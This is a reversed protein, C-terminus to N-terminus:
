PITVVEWTENELKCNSNFKSYSIYRTVPHQTFTHTGKRVAILLDIVDNVTEQLGLFVAKISRPYLKKIDVGHNHVFCLCGFVRPLLSYQERTPSLMSM